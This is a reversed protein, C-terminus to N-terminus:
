DRKPEISVLNVAVIRRTHLRQHITENHWTFVKDSVIVMVNAGSNGAKQRMEAIIKERDTEASTQVTITNVVDYPKAPLRDLVRVSSAPVAPYSPAPPAATKRTTCGSLLIIASLCISLGLRLKRHM